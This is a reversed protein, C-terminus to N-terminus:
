RFDREDNFLQSGPFARPAGDLQIQRLLTSRDQAANDREGDLRLLKQFAAEFGIQEIDAPASRRFPIAKTTCTRYAAIAAAEAIDAKAELNVGVTLPLGIRSTVLVRRDPEILFARYRRGEHLFAWERRRSGGDRVFDIMIPLDIGRPDIPLNGVQRRVYEVGTKHLAALEPLEPTTSTQALLKISRSAQEHLLKLLGDRRQRAAHALMTSIISAARNAPRPERNM